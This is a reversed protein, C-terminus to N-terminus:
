AKEEIILTLDKIATVCVVDDKKLKLDRESQATWSEGDIFVRGSNKSWSEIVAEDGILGEKGTDTRKNYAKMAVYLGGLIVAAFGFSTAGIMAWGYEILTPDYTIASGAIVLTLGALSLIGFAPILIESLVLLIGVIIYVM